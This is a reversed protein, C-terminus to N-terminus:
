FINFLCEYFMSRGMNKNTCENTCKSKVAVQFFQSLLNVLVFDSRERKASVGHNEWFMFTTAVAVIKM